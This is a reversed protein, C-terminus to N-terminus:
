IPTLTFPYQNDMCVTHKHLELLWTDSSNKTMYIIGALGRTADPM